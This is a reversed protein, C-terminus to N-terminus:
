SLIAILLGSHGVADVLFHTAPKNLATYIRQMRLLINKHDIYMM